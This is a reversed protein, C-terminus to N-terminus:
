RKMERVLGSQSGVALLAGTQSFLAMRGHFVGASVAFLQSECLLWSTQELSVVRLSNDLSTAGAPRGLSWHVCEPLYDAIAALVSATLAGDIRVWFVLGGKDPGGSGPVMRVDLHSHLDGIDNRIFPLPACQAPGPVDPALAWQSRGVVDSAGLSATVAVCAQGERVLAASAQTLSRGAKAISTQIQFADGSKLPALFQASATILPRETAAELAAIALGLSSGGSLHKAGPPGLCLDRPVTLDHGGASLRRALDFATM